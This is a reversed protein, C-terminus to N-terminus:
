TYNGEIVKYFNSKKILWDFSCKFQATTNGLLFQSKNVQQFYWQWFELNQHQVDELWRAKIHSKRSDHLKAIRPLTKCEDHFADVIKGYPVANVSPKKFMDDTESSTSNNEKIREKKNTNVQQEDRTSKIHMQQETTQYQEFNVISILRYKNFTQQEIMHCKEFMKLVRQVKSEAIGTVRALKKRGTLFQGTKVHVVQHGIPVDAAKYNASMLLHIWLHVAQSDEYFSSDQLQRHVKVWGNM